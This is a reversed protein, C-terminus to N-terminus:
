FQNAQPSQDSKQDDKGSKNDEVKDAKAKKPKVEEVVAIGGKVLADARDEPFSASENENYGGWGVLFKVNKEM